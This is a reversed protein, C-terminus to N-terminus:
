YPDLGAHAIAGQALYIYLDQSLLPLSVVLPAAWVGVAILLRRQDCARLRLWAWVFAAIGAYFGVRGGPVVTSLSIALAGAFGLAVTVRHHPPSPAIVM